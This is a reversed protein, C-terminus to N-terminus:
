WPRTTKPRRATTAVMVPAVLVSAQAPGGVETVPTVAENVDAAAPASTLQVTPKVVDLEPAKAPVPLVTVTDTGAPAERPGDPLSMTVSVVLPWARALSQPLTVEVVTVQWSLKPLGTAAPSTTDTARKPTVLGVVVPGAVTLAEVEASVWGALVDTDIV